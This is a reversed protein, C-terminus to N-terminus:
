KMMSIICPKGMKKIKRRPHAKHPMDQVDARTYERYM